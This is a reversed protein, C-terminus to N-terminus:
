GAEAPVPVDPAVHLRAGGLDRASAMAWQAREQTTMPAGGSPHVAAGISVTQGHGAQAWGQLLRQGIVDIPAKLERLVVLYGYDQSPTIVDGPPRTAGRLYIALRVLALDLVADDDTRITRAALDLRVALLGDGPRLSAVAAASRQAADASLPDILQLDLSGGVSQDLAYGAAQALLALLTLSSSDGFRGPRHVDLVGNIGVAGPVPMLVRDATATITGRFASDVAPDGALERGSTEPVVGCRGAVTTRGPGQIHLLAGEGDLLESAGRAVRTALDDVDSGSRLEGTVLLLRDLRTELDGDGRAGRRRM